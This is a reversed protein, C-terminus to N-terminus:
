YQRGYEMGVPKIDPAYRTENATEPKRKEGLGAHGEAMQICHMKYKTEPFLKLIMSLLLATGPLKKGFLYLFKDNSLIANFCRFWILVTGLM